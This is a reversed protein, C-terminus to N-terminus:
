YGQTITPWAQWVVYFFGAIIALRILLSGISELVEVAMWIVAIWGAAQAPRRMDDWMQKFSM